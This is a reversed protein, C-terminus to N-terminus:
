RKGAYNSSMPDNRSKDGASMYNLTDNMASIEAPTLQRAQAPPAPPPPSPTGSSGGALMQRIVDGQDASYAQSSGTSDSPTSYSEPGIPTTNGLGGGNVGQLASMLVNPSAPPTALSEPPGYVPGKPTTPPVYSAGPQGGYQGGYGGMISGIGPVQPTQMGNFLGQAQSNIDLAQQLPNLVTGGGPISTGQSWSFAGPITTAGVPAGATYAKSSYVDNANKFSAVKTSLLDNAKSADLKGSEIQTQLDKITDDVYQALPGSDLKQKAQQASMYSDWASYYGKADTIKGGNGDDTQFDAINPPTLIGPVSTSSTPKTTTATTGSGYKSPVYGVGLNKVYSSPLGQKKAEEPYRQQFITDANQLWDGPMKSADHIIDAGVFYAAAAKYMDGGLAKANDQLLRASLSIAQDPHSRLYDQTYGYGSATSSIFQGIGGGNGGNNNFNNEHALLKLFLDPDIQQKKAEEYAKAYNDAQESTTLTIGKEAAAKIIAEQKIDM